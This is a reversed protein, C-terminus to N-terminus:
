NWYHATGIDPYVYIFTDSSFSDLRFNVNCGKIPSDLVFVRIHDMNFKKNHFHVAFEMKEGAGFDVPTPTAEEEVDEYSSNMM